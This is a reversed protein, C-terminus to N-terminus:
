ASPSAPQDEPGSAWQYLTFYTAAMCATLLGVVATDILMLPWVPAGALAAYGLAYHLAMLPLIGALLLAIVAPMRRCCARVSGALTMARDETVLGVYWPFLTISILLWILLPLLAILRLADTPNGLLLAIGRGMLMAVGDGAFQVLLFLAFGKLLARTPRLARAVDGDFRWLRWAIILALIIAVIKVLGFTLRTSQDASTMTGSYMGLEIEAVHQAGEALVPLALLWPWQRILMFARRYLDGMAAIM